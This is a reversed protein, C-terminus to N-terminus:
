EKEFTISTLITKEGSNKIEIEVCECAESAEFSRASEGVAVVVVPNEPNMTQLKEILEKTNM